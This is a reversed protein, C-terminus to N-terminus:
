NWSFWPPDLTPNPESSGAGGSHATGATTTARTTIRGNYYLYIQLSKDGSNTTGSYSGNPDYLFYVANTTASGGFSYTSAWLTGGGHLKICPRVNCSTAIAGNTYTDDLSSTTDTAVYNMYQFLTSPTTSTTLTNELRAQQHAAAITAIAEKATAKYSGNQQVSLIKPITFTAIEALILLSILLEALTFGKQHIGRM